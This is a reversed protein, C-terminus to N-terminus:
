GIMRLFEEETKDWVGFSFTRGQVLVSAVRDDTERVVYTYSTIPDTNRKEDFLIAFYVKPLIHTPPKKAIHIHKVGIANLIENQPLDDLKQIELRELKQFAEGLKWRNVFENFDVIDFRGYRIVAQRGQFHRLVAPLTPKIQSIEIYEAKYLKSEPDLPETMRLANLQVCKLVPSSSIFNEFNEMDLKDTDLWLHDICPSIYQLQPVPNKYDNALWYYEMSNGFFDLFYDHISKIVTSENEYPRYRGNEYTDFSAVVQYGGYRYAFRFDIMTGSVNLQFYDKKTADVVAIQMIDDLSDVNYPIYVFHKASGYDYNISDISKFRKMQSSKILKKINKSVFSLLFLNSCNMNDLIENQVLNPYKFLQM